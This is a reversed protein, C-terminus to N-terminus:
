YEAQIVRESLLMSAFMAIPNNPGPKAAQQQEALGCSRCPRSV